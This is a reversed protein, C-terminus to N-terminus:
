RLSIVTRESISRNAALTVKLTRVADAYPSLIKSRDGSEIAVLFAEDEELYPNNGSQLIETRGPWLIELNGSGIRLTVEKTYLDLGVRGGASVICASTISAIAGSEFTLDTVSADHVDYDEVDTMLGTRAAAHVSTVEGLMYRALDFIHTTQEVMQGGSEGIVRWWHVGPMGGVWSGRALGVERDRLIEKAKQTSTMYRFHYGVSSVSGHREIAAEIEEAKELAVAVPKEVFLALGREAALVEQDTHAFPPVCIFVADLTEGEYMERYDTYAKGGYQKAAAEARDRVIDCFAVMQANGLTALQRMHNGAIGGSGVFGIRVAM